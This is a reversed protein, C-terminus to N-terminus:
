EFNAVKKVKQSCREDDVKYKIVYIVIKPLKECFWTILIKTSIM